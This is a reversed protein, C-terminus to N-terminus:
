AQGPPPGALPAVGPEGEAQLEVGTAVAYRVIRSVIPSYSAARSAIAAFSVKFSWDLDIRKLRGSRLHARLLFLPAILTAHGALALDVLPEYDNSQYRSVVGGDEVVGLMRANAFEKLGAGAGPFEAFRAISVNPEDVLPHAPHAVAVIHSTLVEVAVLDEGGVDEGMGCIVLDLDRAKVLPLLRDRDLVEIELSLQPHHLAVALVFQPLFGHRLGAGVGLRVTGAEGGAVLEAERVIQETEAIVKGAREAIMEGVRTLHSGASTREFLKVKLQDELRSIASSLSPQSMGLAEAAKAFSGCRRVALLQRMNRVDMALGSYSGVIARCHCDSNRGQALPIIGGSTGLTVTRARGAERRREM